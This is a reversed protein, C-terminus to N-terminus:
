EVTDRGGLEDLVSRIADDGVPPYKAPFTLAGERAQTTWSIRPAPLTPPSPALRLDPPWPMDPHHFVARNCSRALEHNVTTALETGLRGEGLLPAPSAVLLADPSIPMYVTADAPLVGHWDPSPLPSLVAVPADGTLLAPAAGRAVEWNWGALLASLEDAKRLMTRLLSRRRDAPDAPVRELAATTAALLRRRERDSLSAFDIGACRVYENMALLPRVGADIQVMLSRVTATRLLSTAVFRALVEEREPAPPSGARLTRLVTAVQNEVDASLWREVGEQPHGRDDAYTYFDREVTASHVNRREVAGGRAHMCFQGSDDAFGRLHTKAATHQRRARPRSRLPARGGPLDAEGNDPM